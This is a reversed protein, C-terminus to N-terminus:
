AVPLLLHWLHTLTVERAVRINKSSPDRSCFSLSASSGKTVWFGFKKRELCKVAECGLEMSSGM